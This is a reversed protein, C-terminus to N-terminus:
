FSVVLLLRKRRCNLHVVLILFAVVVKPILDILKGLHVPFDSLSGGAAVRLDIHGLLHDVLQTVIVAAVNSNRRGTISTGLCRGKFFTIADIGM